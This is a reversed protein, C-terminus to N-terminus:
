IESPLCPRFENVFDEQPGYWSYGDSELDNTKFNSWTLVNVLPKGMDTRTQEIAIVRHIKLRSDAHGQGIYRCLTNPEIPFSM